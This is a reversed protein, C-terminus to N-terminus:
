CSKCCYSGSEMKLAAPVAVEESSAGPPETLTVAQGNVVNLGEVGGDAKRKSRCARYLRVARRIM